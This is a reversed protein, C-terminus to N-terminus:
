PLIPAVGHTERRKHGYCGIHHLPTGQLMLHGNDHMFIIKNCFFHKNNKYWPLFHDTLFEVYKESTMKVGKPVKISGVLETVHHCMIRAWFM